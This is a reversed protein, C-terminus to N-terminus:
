FNSGSWGWNEVPFYAVYCADPPINLQDELLNTIEATMADTANSSLRGFAKVEVYAIQDVSGRFSLSAEPEFGCMVWSEGKGLCKQAIACLEKTLTDKTADDIFATTKTNIFPM